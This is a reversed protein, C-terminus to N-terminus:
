VGTVGVVGFSGVGVEVCARLFESRKMHRTFVGSTARLSFLTWDGLGVFADLLPGVLSEFQARANSPAAVAVDDPAAEPTAADVSMRPRRPRPDDEGDGDAWGRAPPSAMGWPLRM